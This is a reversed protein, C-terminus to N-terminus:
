SVLELVWNLPLEDGVHVFGPGDELAHKRMSLAVHACTSVREDICKWDFGIRVGSARSESILMVARRRIVKHPTLM